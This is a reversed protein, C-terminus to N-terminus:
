ASGLTTSTLTQSSRSSTLIIGFNNRFETSWFTDAESSAWTKINQFTLRFKYDFKKVRDSAYM